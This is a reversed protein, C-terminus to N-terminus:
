RSPVSSCATCWMAWCAALAIEGVLEESGGLERIREGIASRVVDVSTVLASNM